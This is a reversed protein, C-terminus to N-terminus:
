IFASLGLLNEIQAFIHVLLDSDSLAIYKLQIVENNQTIVTVDVDWGDPKILSAYMISFARVVTEDIM